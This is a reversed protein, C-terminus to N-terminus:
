TCSISKRRQLVYILQPLFLEQVLFGVTIYLKQNARSQQSSYIIWIISKRTVHPMENVYTTLDMFMKSSYLCAQWSTM